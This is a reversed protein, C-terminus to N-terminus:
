DLYEAARVKSFPMKRLVIRDFNSIKPRIEAFTASRMKLVKPRSGPFAESFILQDTNVSKM